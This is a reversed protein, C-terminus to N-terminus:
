HAATWPIMFLWINSLLQFVVVASPVHSHGQQRLAWPLLGLSQLLGTFASWAPPLYMPSHIDPKVASFPAQPNTKKKEPKQASPHMAPARPARLDAQSVNQGPARTQPSAHREPSFHNKSAVGLGPHRSPSPVKSSCDLFESPLPHPIQVQFVPLKETRLM